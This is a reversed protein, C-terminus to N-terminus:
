DPGWTQLSVATPGSHEAPEPSLPPSLSSSHSTSLPAPRGYQLLVCVLTVKQHGTESLVGTADELAGRACVYTRVEEIYM